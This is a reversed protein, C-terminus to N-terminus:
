RTPREWMSKGNFINWFYPINYEESFHEEWGHPLATPADEPAAPAPPEADAAPAPSAKPAPTRSRDAIRIAPKQVTVIPSPQGLPRITLQPFRVPTAAAPAAPAMHTVRGPALAGKLGITGKGNNVIPAISRPAPFGKSGYALAATGRPTIKRVPAIPASQWAPVVASQGKGFSYGGPSVSAGKGFARPIAGKPASARGQYPSETVPKPAPADKPDPPDGQNQRFDGPDMVLLKAKATTDTPPKPGKKSFTTLTGSDIRDQIAQPNIFNSELRLYVPIRAKTRELECPFADNGELAEMVTNFGDATLACDSLHIEKIANESTLSSLWEGLLSACMDNFTPCGFLRLREVKRGALMAFIIELHEFPIPNQSIDLDEFALEPHEELKKSLEVCLADAAEPTPLQRRARVVLATPPGSIMENSGNNGWSM